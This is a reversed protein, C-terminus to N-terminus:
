DCLDTAQDLQNMPIDNTSLVLRDIYPREKFHKKGISFTHNGSSPIDVTVPGNVTDHGSADKCQVKSEWHWQFVAGYNKQLWIDSSGACGHNQPAKIEQNNLHYRLGNDYHGDIVMTRPYIYYRGPTPFYVQYNVMGWNENVRIATGVAGNYDQVEYDTQSVFDEAEFTVVARNPCSSAQQQPQTSQEQSTQSPDSQSSQKSQEASQQQNNDQPTESQKQQKSSQTIDDSTPQKDQAQRPARDSARHVTSNNCASFIM